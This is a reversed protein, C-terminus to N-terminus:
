NSNQSAFRVSKTQASNSNSIASAGSFSSDLGYQSKLGQYNGGSKTVLMLGANWSKGRLVNRHAVEIRRVILETSPWSGNRLKSFVVHGEYYVEFAGVRPFEQYMGLKKDYIRKEIENTVPNQFDVVGIDIRSNPIATENLLVLFGLPTLRAKLSEFAALYRGENTFIHPHNVQRDGCMEVIIIPMSTM